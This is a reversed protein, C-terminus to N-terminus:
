QKKYLNWIRQYITESPYPNKYISLLVIIVNYFFDTIDFVLIFQVISLNNGTKAIVITFNM